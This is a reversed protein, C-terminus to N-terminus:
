FGVGKKKDEAFHQTIDKIDITTFLGWLYKKTTTVVEKTILQKDPNDSTYNVIQTTTSDYIYKM